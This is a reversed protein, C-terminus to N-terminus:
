AGGLPPLDHPIRYEHHLPSDHPDELAARQGALLDRLKQVQPTVDEPPQVTVPEAPAEGARTRLEQVADDLAENTVHREALLEDIRRKLEATDFVYAREVEDVRARLRELEAAVEPSMHRGASEIAM